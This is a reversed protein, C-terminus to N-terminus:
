KKNSKKREQRQKEMLKNFGKEDISFGKEQAMVNTLDVPFGYTDYLKFVDEGDIILESGFIKKTYEPKWEDFSCKFKLEGSLEPYNLWEGKNMKEIFIKEQENTREYFELVVSNENRDRYPIVRYKTTKMSESDLMFAITEEFM